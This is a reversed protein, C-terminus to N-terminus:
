AAAVGLRTAIRDLAARQKVSLNPFRDLGGLFTQEWATLSDPRARCEAVVTRWSAPQPPTVPAAANPLVVDHWTLRRERVFRSAFAAASAREGDHESGLLGLLAILRARESPSLAMM